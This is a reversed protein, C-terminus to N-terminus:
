QYVQPERYLFYGCLFSTDFPYMNEFIQTYSMLILSLFFPATEFALFLFMQPLEKVIPNYFIFLPFLFRRFFLFFPVVCLTIDNAKHYFSSIVFTTSLLYKAHGIRSQIVDAIASSGFIKKYLHQFCSVSLALSSAMIEVTLPKSHNAYIDM